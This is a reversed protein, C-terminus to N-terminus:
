RWKYNISPYNAFERSESLDIHLATVLVFALTL